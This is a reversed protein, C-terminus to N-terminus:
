VCVEIPVSYQTRDLAIVHAVTLDPVEAQHLQKFSFSVAYNCKLVKILLVSNIVGTKTNKVNV